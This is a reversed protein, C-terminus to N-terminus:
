LKTQITIPTEWLWIIGALLGCTVAIQLVFFALVARVLIQSHTAMVGVKKASDRIADNLETVEKRASFLIVATGVSMVLPIILGFAGLKSPHSLVYATIAGVVTLFFNHFNILLKLYFRYLGDLFKHRQWLTDENM